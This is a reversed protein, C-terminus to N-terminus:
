FDRLGAIPMWESSKRGVNRVGTTNRTRFALRRHDTGYSNIYKVRKPTQNHFNTKRLRGDGCPRTRRRVFDHFVIMVTSKIVTIWSTSRSSLIYHRQSYILLLSFFAGRRYIMKLRVRFIICQASMEHENYVSCEVPPQSRAGDIIQRRFSSFDLRHCFTHFNVDLLSVRRVTVYKVLSCKKKRFYPQILNSHHSSVYQLKSKKLKKRGTARSEVRAAIYLLSLIMYTNTIM